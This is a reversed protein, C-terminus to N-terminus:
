KPLNSIPMWYLVDFLYNNYSEINVWTSYETDFNALYIEYHKDRISNKDYAECYILYLKTDDDPLKNEVSIWPSKPNNDAIELGTKLGLNYWLEERDSEFCYPEVVNLKEIDERTM